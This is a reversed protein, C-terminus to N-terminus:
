KTATGGATEIGCAVYKKAQRITLCFRCATAGRVSQRKFHASNSGIAPKDMAGM